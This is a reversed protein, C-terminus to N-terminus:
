LPFSIFSGFQILILLNINFELRAKLGCIHPIAPFEQIRVFDCDPLILLLLQWFYYIAM